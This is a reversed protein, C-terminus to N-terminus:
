VLEMPLVIGPCIALSRETKCSGTDRGSIRPVKNTAAKQRLSLPIPAGGHVKLADTLVM